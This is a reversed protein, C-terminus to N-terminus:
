SYTGNWVLPSITGAGRSEGRYRFGLWCDRSGATGGFVRRLLIEEQEAPLNRDETAQSVVTLPHELPVRTSLVGM